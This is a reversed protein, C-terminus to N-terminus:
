TSHKAIPQDGSGGSKETTSDTTRGNGVLHQRGLVGFELQLLEARGTTWRTTEGSPRLRAAVLFRGIM